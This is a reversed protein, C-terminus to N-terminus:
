CGFMVLLMTYLNAAWGPLRSLLNKWVYKEFILIVGYYLGWLPFNFTGGHWIGTLCWVILYKQSTRSCICPEGWASYLCLGPVMFEVVHAVKELVRDCKQLIRIILTRRFDFGLMKGVGIAMDSYGSFDFFIQMTYAFLYIWATMMSMPTGADQIQSIMM